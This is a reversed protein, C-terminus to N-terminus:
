KWKGRSLVPPLERYRQWWMRWPVFPSLHDVLQMHVAITPLPSFCPIEKYILDITNEETIDPDIGYACLALYNQWYEQMVKLSTVFSGSSRWVRRWHRDSGLFVHTPVIHRYEDPYDYPLLVVDSELTAALLGYSDILEQVSSLDHLYDDEVCYVLDKCVDRGHTFTEKLSAGNGTVELSILDTACNAGALIERFDDVVEIDSHDDLITLSIKAESDKSMADNISDVLSRLCTSALESKPVDMFRRREPTNYSARACSRFLIDFHSVPRPLSPEFADFGDGRGRGTGDDFDHVHTRKLRQLSYGLRRLLARIIRTQLRAM